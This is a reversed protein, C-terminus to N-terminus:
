EIRTTASGDGLMRMENEFEAVVMLQMPVTFTQSAVISINYAVPELPTSIQECDASNGSGSCEFVLIPYNTIFLPQTVAFSRRNGCVSRVLNYYPEAVSLGDWNEIRQTIRRGGITLRVTTSSIHRYAFPCLSQDGMVAKESLILLFVRRPYQAFTSGPVRQEKQNPVLSFSDVSYDIFPIALGWERRLMETLRGMAPDSLQLRTIGLEAKTLRLRYPTAEGSMLCFDTRNMTFHLAWNGDATLLRESAWCPVFLPGRFPVLASGQVLERRRILGPVVCQSFPPFFFFFFGEGGQNAAFSPDTAPDTDLFMGMQGGLVSQIYGADEKLLMQSHVLHAYNPYSKVLRGNRMVKLEQFATYGLGCVIAVKTYGSLDSGDMNVVQFETSMSMQM